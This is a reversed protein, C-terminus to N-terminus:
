DGPLFGVASISNDSLWKSADNQGQKTLKGTTPDYCTVNFLDYGILLIAKQDRDIFIVPCGQDIYYLLSRMPCGSLNLALGPFLTNLAEYPSMSDKVGSMASTDMGQIELTKQLCARLSQSAKVADGGTTTLDVTQSRGTRVWVQRGRSDTVAGMSDYVSAIASGASAAQTQLHGESFGYYVIKENTEDEANSQISDETGYAIQKPRSVEPQGAKQSRSSKLEQVAQRAGGDASSLATEKKATADSCILTDGEIESFTDGTKQLRGLQVQEQSCTVSSLYIGEKQYRAQEKGDRGLIVVAFYPKVTVGGAIASDGKHGYGLICDSGIFGEPAIFDDKEAGVMQSEGTDLYLIQVSESEGSTDEEWAAATQDSSVVLHRASVQDALVAVDSGDWDISYVTDGSMLYVVGSSSMCALTEVGEKLTDYTEKGPLFFGEALTGTEAQYTLCSIGLQGEHKGSNMYGYVLFCIDGDDEARLIRIGYSRWSVPAESEESRGSYICVLKGSDPQWSWLEGGATFAQVTGATNKVTQPTEQQIGLDLMGNEGDVDAAQFLESMTRHYNMLYFRSSSWQVSFYEEALYTRVMGDEDTSQLEYELLYSGFSADMELIHMSVNGSQKPALDGYTVQALSSHISVDALSTNDTTDDSELYNSLTMDSTTGIATDHFKQVFATMESVHMNDSRRIRTYYHLEQSSGTTLTLILRYERSANTVTDALSLTFAAADHNEDWSAVDGKGVSRANDRTRVEWSVSKLSNGCLSVTMPLTGDEGILMLSDEMLAPSVESTYAPLANMQTGSVQASVVPLSAAQIDEYTVEPEEPKNESNRYFIFGAVAAVFIVALVLIRTGIKKM